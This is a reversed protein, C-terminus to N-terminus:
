GNHSRFGIYHTRCHNLMVPSGRNFYWEHLVTKCERYSSFQQTQVVKPWLQLLWAQLWCYQIRTDECRRTPPSESHTAAGMIYPLLIYCSAVSDCPTSRSAATFKPVYISTKLPMARNESCYCRKRILYYCLDRNVAFLPTWIYDIQQRVNDAVTWFAWITCLVVSHLGIIHKAHHIISWRNWQLGLRVTLHEANRLENPM